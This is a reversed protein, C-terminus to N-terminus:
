CFRAVGVFAVQDVDAALWGLFVSGQADGGFLRLECVALMEEKCDEGYRLLSIETVYKLVPSFGHVWLCFVGPM